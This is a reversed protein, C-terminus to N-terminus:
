EGDQTNPFIMIINLDMKNTPAEGTYYYYGLSSNWCTSSGLMTISVESDKNVTMDSNARYEEKVSTGSNLASCATAYLGDFEEDTFVLGPAATAKDLLYDPRGSASNWKGLPTYWPKYVQTGSNEYLNKMQSISNTSTGAGPVHWPARTMRSQANALPNEVIARAQGDMVEVMTRRLGVLFNGTVVHLVKAYAPLVVTEDFKGNKDTYGAFIPKINENVYENSKNENVFPNVSYVCFFVPVKANFASYDVILDVEQSTSFDFTNADITSLQEDTSFFDDKDSCSVGVFLVCALTCAKLLFNTYNTM